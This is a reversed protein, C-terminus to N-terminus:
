EVGEAQFTPCYVLGLCVVFAGERPTGVEDDM